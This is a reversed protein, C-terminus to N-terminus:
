ARAGGPRVCDSDAIEPDRSSSVTAPLMIDLIWSPCTRPVAVNRVRGSAMKAGFPRAGNNATAATAAIPTVETRSRRNGGSGLRRDRNRPANTANDKALARHDTERSSVKDVRGDTASVRRPPSTRTDVPLRSPTSSLLQNWVAATAPPQAPNPSRTISNSLPADIVTQSRSRTPFGLMLAM